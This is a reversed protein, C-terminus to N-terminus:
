GIKAWDNINGQGVMLRTFTFAREDM